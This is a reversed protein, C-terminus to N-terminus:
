PLLNSRVDLRVKLDAIAKDVHLRCHSIELHEAMAAAMPIREATKRRFAGTHRAAAAM